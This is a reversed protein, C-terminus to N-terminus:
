IHPTFDVYAMGCIWEIVAEYNLLTSQSGKMAGLVTIWLLIEHAGHGADQEVQKYTLNRMWEVNGKTYQQLFQRDWEENVLPHKSNKPYDNSAAMEVEYANLELFLNPDQELFSKGETQFQRMRRLFVDEEPSSAIWFPPWHSLGGTTILGVRLDPPMKTVANRIAEGLKYARGCSILPPTFVNIFIPVIPCTLGSDMLKWPVMLNNGYELSGTRSCDFEDEVLSKLLEEALDPAGPFDVKKEYRLAELWQDAPGSHSEAVGVAISPMNNRFLNEFHDDLIAILVDPKADKLSQGLKKSAQETRERVDSKAEEPFGLAGPAHSLAVAAVIKGM